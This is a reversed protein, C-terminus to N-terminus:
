KRPPGRYEFGEHSRFPVTRTLLVSISAFRVTMASMSFNLPRIWTTPGALFSTTSDTPRQARPRFTGSACPRRERLGSGATGACLDVPRAADITAACRRRARAPDCGLCAPLPWDDGGRAWPQVASSTTYCHTFRVGDAALRDLNPTRVVPHGYCGVDDWGHDDAVIVLFNPLREQARLAAVPLGALLARRSIQSQNLNAAAPNDPVKPDVKHM